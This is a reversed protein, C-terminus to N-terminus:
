GIILKNFICSFPLFDCIQQIEIMFVTFMTTFYNISAFNPSKQKCHHISIQVGEEKSFNKKLLYFGFNIEL